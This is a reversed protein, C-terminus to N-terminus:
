TRPLPNFQITLRKTLSTLVSVAGSETHKNIVDTLNLLFRYDEVNDWQMTLTVM